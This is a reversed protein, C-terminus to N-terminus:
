QITESDHKLTTWKWICNPNGDEAINDKIIMLRIKHPKSNDISGCKLGKFKIDHYEHEFARYRGTPKTTKFTFQKNETISKIHKM